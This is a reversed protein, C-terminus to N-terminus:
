ATERCYEGDDAKKACYFKGPKRSPKMAVNHVPCLPASKKTPEPTAVLAAPPEAGAQLLREVILKLDSARGEGSIEIPFGKMVANITFRCAPQKSEIPTVNLQGNMTDGKTLDDLRRLARRRM